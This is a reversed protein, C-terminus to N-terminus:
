RNRVVDDKTWQAAEMATTRRYRNGCGPCEMGDGDDVWSSLHILEDYVCIIIIIIIPVPTFAIWHVFYLFAAYALFLSVVVVCLSWIITKCKTQEYKYRRIDQGRHQRITKGWGIQITAPNGINLKACKGGRLAQYLIHSWGVNNSKIVM